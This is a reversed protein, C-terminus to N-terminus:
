RPARPDRLVEADLPGGPVVLPDGRLVRRMERWQRFAGEAFLALDEDAEEWRSGPTETVTGGIGKAPDHSLTRASKIFWRGPGLRDEDMDDDAGIRHARYESCWAEGQGSYSWVRLTEEVFSVSVARYETIESTVDSEAARRVADLKDRLAEVEPELKALLDDRSRRRKLGEYALLGLAAAGFVLADTLTVLRGAGRAGM